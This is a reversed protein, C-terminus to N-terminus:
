SVGEHGSNYSEPDFDAWAPPVDSASRDDEEKEIINAYKENIEEYEDGTLGWDEYEPEIDSAECTAAVCESSILSLDTAKWSEKARKRDWSRRAIAEVTGGGTLGCASVLDPPVFCTEGEALEIFGFGADAVSLYGTVAIKKSPESAVVSTLRWAWRGGTSTKAAGPKDRDKLFVLRANARVRSGDEISLSSATGPPVSIDEKCGIHGWDNNTEYIGELDVRQVRNWLEGNELRGLPEVIVKRAKGFIRGTYVSGEEIPSSVYRADVRTRTLGSGLARGTHVGYRPREKKLQVAFLSRGDKSLKEAYFESAPCSSLLGDGSDSLAALKDVQWVWEGESKSSDAEDTKRQKRFVIRERFEVMSGLAIDNLEPTKPPVFVDSDRPDSVPVRVFYTKTGKEKNEYVDLVGIGSRIVYPRIGASKNTGVSGVICRKNRSFVASCTQGIPLLEFDGDYSVRKRVLNSTRESGYRSIDRALTVVGIAGEEANAWELYFDTKPVYDALYEAANGSLEKYIQELEKGSCADARSTDSLVRSAPEWLKWGNERRCTDIIQAEAKAQPPMGNRTFYELAEQHLSLAGKVERNVRLGQFLCEVFAEESIPRAARGFAGWAWPDKSKEVVVPALFAMAEETRGMESLLEGLSYPPWQWDACRRDSLLERAMAIGHELVQVDFVLNGRQDKSQLAKLYSHTISEADSLVKRGDVERKSFEDDAFNDLGYWNGLDVISIADASLGKFLGRIIGPVFLMSNRPWMVLENLLQRLAPAGSGNEQKALDWVTKRVNAGANEFFMSEEPGLPLTRARSLCKVYADMNQYYGSDPDQYRKMCDYIVWSFERVTWINQPNEAYLRAATVWAEKLQGKKRLDTIEGM